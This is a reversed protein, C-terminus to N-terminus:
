NCYKFWHVYKINKQLYCSFNSFVLPYDSDTFQLLVSFVIISLFLALLVSLIFSFISCCSVWSQVGSILLLQEVLPTRGILITVFGTILRSHPVFRIIIIVFPFYRHDNTVCINQLM